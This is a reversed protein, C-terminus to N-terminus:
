KGCIENSDVDAVANDDDVGFNHIESESKKKKNKKERKQPKRKVTSKGNEEIQLQKDPSVASAISLLLHSKVFRICKIM